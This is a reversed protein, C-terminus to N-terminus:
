PPLPPPTTNNPPPRPILNQFPNPLQQNLYNPDGGKNRDGLALVELPVENIGRNVLAGRTRSGAYAVDLKMKSPLQRQIGFSFQHVYPIRPHTDTFNPAQGLFTQMGVTAGAPRLVGNPFSDSGRNDRM